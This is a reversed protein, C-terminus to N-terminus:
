RRATASPSSTTRGSSCTRRPRQHAHMADEIALEHLSFEEQVKRLLPTDPEHVGLWIFTEPEKLVESIDNVPINGLSKGARYAICNVIM